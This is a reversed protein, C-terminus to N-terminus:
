TAVFVGNRPESVLVSLASAVINYAYLVVARGQFRERVTAPDLVDFGFGTSRDPLDPIGAPSYVSRLVVYAAALMTMAVLSRGSIGRWGATWAAAAAVWVLLGSELTLTGLALALVAGADAWWGGTSRALNLVVLCCVVVELFHNIPFAEQVLGRFTHLGVLVALAFASAAADTWSSVRQAATFLLLAAVALLAHFGRYVLWYHEGRALDFLMKTQAIRLPRLYHENRLGQEFSAWISPSERADLIEDVSDYVQVPMWLLDVALGLGVLFALALAAIRPTM